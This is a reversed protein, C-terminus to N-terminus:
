WRVCKPSTGCDSKVNEFPNRVIFSSRRASTRKEAVPWLLVSFFVSLGRIVEAAKETLDRTM